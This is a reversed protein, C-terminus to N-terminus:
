RPAAAIRSSGAGNMAPAAPVAGPATAQLVIGANQAATVDKLNRGTAISWHTIIQLMHRQYIGGYLSQAGGATVIANTEIARLIVSMPHALQFYSDARAHPALGVQQGILRLRDAVGVASANLDRVVQTDYAITLFFWSLTAVADFEERALNGAQRRANLMERLRRVLEDIANNDTANANLNNNRNIYGKWAEALLSEFVVSFDRNSVESKVYQYPRGDETGHNLDMGLLRYYANRRIAAPDPRLSSALSRVSFPVPSTFFLEETVQLWRLTATTAPSLREGSRYEAVARRMIDVLRTNELCLAYAIHHVPGLTPLTVGVGLGPADLPIPRAMAPDAPDTPIPFGSLAASQWYGELFDLIQLPRQQTLIINAQTVTGGMANALEIFM